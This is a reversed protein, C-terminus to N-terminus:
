HVHSKYTNLLKAKLKPNFPELTPPEPAETAKVGSKDVFDNVDIKISAQSMALAVNAWLQALEAEKKKEQQEEQDNKLRYKKGVPIKFGLKILKPLLHNNIVYEEFHSDTSECEALARGIPSDDQDQGKAGQQGGMKGPQSSIGDEHGLILGSITKKLRMEFNDYSQWGTGAGEPSVLEYEDMKDLILYGSSGLQQAAQEAKGREEESDKATKIVATPMGYRETYDTNWGILSRMIIEYLAVKYLLGYGCKSVGNESPTPVYLSWDFYSQGNADQAAPKMFEIGIPIYQFSSLVLRDPSVDTRRTIQVDPFSGDVIDGFSILSYGYFTADHIYNRMLNFWDTNLLETAVEDTNGKDDCIHYKKLLTLNKRKQMCASVHGNLATDLFITQMQVRYPLAPMPREAESVAARWYSTDVKVRIVQVPGRYENLRKADERIQSGLPNQNGEPTGIGSIGPFFMNKIPAVRHVYIAPLNSM